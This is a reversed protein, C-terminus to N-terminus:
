DLERALVRQRPFAAAPALDRTADDRGLAAALAGHEDLRHLEHIQRAERHLARHREMVDLEVLHQDDAVLEVEVEADDAQLLAAAVAAVVAQPRDHLLAAATVERAQADADSAVRVLRRAGLVGGRPHEAIERRRGQDVADNRGTALVDLRREGEADGGRHVLVVGTGVDATRSISGGGESVTAVTPKVGMLISMARKCDSRSVGFVDRSYSVIEMRRGLVGFSSTASTFAWLLPIMSPMPPLIM